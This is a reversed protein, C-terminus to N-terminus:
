PTASRRADALPGDPRAALVLRRLGTESPPRGWTAGTARLATLADTAAGGPPPTLAGLTDLLIREAALEAATVQERLAALAPDAILPWPTELGRRAGRLPATVAGDWRRAIEVARQLTPADVPRSEHVSWLRWLMLPACQGEGDQLDLCAAEVAPWAWLAAAYDWPTM